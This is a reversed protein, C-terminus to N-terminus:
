GYDVSLASQDMRGQSAGADYGSKLHNSSIGWCERQIGNTRTSEGIYAQNMLIQRVVQRHWVKAGRKTPINQETLYRAIGNIGKVRNNPKTFLDFILRVM